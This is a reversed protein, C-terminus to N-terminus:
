EIPVYIDMESDDEGFKFRKDYLEFDPAQRLKQAGSKIWEGYIYEYTAKLIDLKGKHTFVAYKGAPVTKSVMGNPINDFNDVPRSALYTFEMTKCDIMECVGYCVEESNAKIEQYRPMIDCWLQKIPETDTGRYEMGIVKFETVNVIKYDM